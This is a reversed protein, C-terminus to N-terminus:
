EYIGRITKEIVNYERWRNEGGLNLAEQWLYMEDV